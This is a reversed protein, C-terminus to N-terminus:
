QIDKKRDRYRSKAEKMDDWGQKSDSGKLGGVIYYFLVSGVVFWFSLVSPNSTIFVSM